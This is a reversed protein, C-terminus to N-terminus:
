KEQEQKEYSDCIGLPEVSAEKVWEKPNKCLLSIGMNIFSHRCTACCPYVHTVRYTKKDAIPKKEDM